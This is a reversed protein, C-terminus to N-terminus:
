VILNVGSSYDPPCGKRLNVFGQSKELSKLIIGCDNPSILLKHWLVIADDINVSAAGAGQGRDLAKKEGLVEVPPDRDGQKSPRTSRENAESGEQYALVSTLDSM